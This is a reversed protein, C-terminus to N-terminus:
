WMRSLDIPNLCNDHKRPLGRCSLSQAAEGVADEGGSRRGSAERCGRGMPLGLLRSAKGCYLVWWLSDISSQPILITDKRVQITVMSGVQLAGHLIAIPVLGLLHKVLAVIPHTM